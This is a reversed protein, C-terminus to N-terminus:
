RAIAMDVRPYRREYIPELTPIAELRDFRASGKCVFIFRLDALPDSIRTHRSLLNPNGGLEIIGPMVANLFADICGEFGQPNVVNIEVQDM